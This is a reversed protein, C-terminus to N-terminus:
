VQCGADYMEQRVIECENDIDDISIDDSHFADLLQTLDNGINHNEDDKGRNNMAAMFLVYDYMSQLARRDDIENVVKFISSRLVTRQDDLNSVRNIVM